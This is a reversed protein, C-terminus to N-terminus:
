PLNLQGASALALIKDRVAPWFSELGSAAYDAETWLPAVFEKDGSALVAYVRQNKVDVNLRLLEVDNVSTIVTKTVPTEFAITRPESM